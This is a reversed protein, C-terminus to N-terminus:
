RDGIRYRNPLVRLIYQTYQTQDCVTGPNEPGLTVLRTFEDFPKQFM